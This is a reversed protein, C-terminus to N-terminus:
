QTASVPKKLKDLYSQAKKNGPDMKLAHEFAEVASEIIQIVEAPNETTSALLILSEGLSLFVEPSDPRQKSLMSYEKAADMYQEGLFYVRALRERIEAVNPDAELITNWLDVAKIIQGRKEYILSLNKRAEELSDDLDLAAEYEKQAEPYDGRKYYINAIGEHVVAVKPDIQNARLYAELAQEDKEMRLYAHGLAIQPHNDKPALKGATEFSRAAEDLSQKSLYLRGLWYHVRAKKPNKQVLDQYFKIGLPGRRTKFYHFVLARHYKDEEIGLLVAQTFGERAEEFKSLKQKEMANDFHIEAEKKKSAARSLGPPILFLAGLIFVSAILFCKKSRDFRGDIRHSRGSARGPLDM